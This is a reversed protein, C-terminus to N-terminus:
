PKPAAACFSGAGNPGARTDRESAAVTTTTCTSRPMVSSKRVWYDRGPVVGEVAPGDYRIKVFQVSNPHSAALIPKGKWADGAPVTALPKLDNDYLRVASAPEGVKLGEGAAPGALLLLGAIGIRWMM